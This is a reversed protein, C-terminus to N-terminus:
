SNPQFFQAGMLGWIWTFSSKVREWSRSCVRAAECVDMPFFTERMMSNMQWGILFSVVVRWLVLMDRLIIMKLLTNPLFLILQWSPLPPVLPNLGQILEYFQLWPVSDKAPAEHCPFFFVKLGSLNGLFHHSLEVNQKSKSQPIRIENGHCLQKKPLPLSGYNWKM